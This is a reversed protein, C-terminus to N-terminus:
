VGRMARRFAGASSRKPFVRDLGVLGGYGNVTIVRGQKIYRMYPEGPASIYYGNNGDTLQDCLIGVRDALYPKSGAKTIFPTNPGIKSLVPDNLLRKQNVDDMVVLSSNHSKYKRTTLLLVPNMRFFIATYNGITAVPVEKGDSDYQYIISEDQPNPRVVTWGPAAPKRGFLNYGYMEIEDAVVVFNEITQM